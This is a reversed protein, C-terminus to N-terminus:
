LFVIFLYFITNQGKSKTWNIDYSFYNWTEWVTGLTM